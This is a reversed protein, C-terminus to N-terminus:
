RTEGVGKDEHEDLRERKYVVLVVELGEGDAEGEDGDADAVEEGPDGEDGGDFAVHLLARFLGM